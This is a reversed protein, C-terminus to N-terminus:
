MVVISRVTKRVTKHINKEPSEFYESHNRGRNETKLNSFFTASSSSSTSPHTFHLSDSITPNYPLINKQSTYIQPINKEPSDSSSFTRPMRERSLVNKEINKDQTRNKSDRYSLVNRHPSTSSPDRSPIRENKESSFNNKIKNTEMMATADIQMVALSRITSMLVLDDTNGAVNFDIKNPYNDDNKEDNIKHNDNNNDNYENDGNIYNSDRNYINNGNNDNDDRDVYNDNDNNRLNTHDDNGNKERDYVSHHVNEDDFNDNRSISFNHTGSHGNMGQQPYENSQSNSLKEKIKTRIPSSELSDCVTPENIHSMLDNFEVMLVDLAAVKELSRNLVNRQDTRQTTSKEPSSFFTGSSSSFTGIDKYVPQNVSAALRELPSTVDTAHYSKTSEAASTESSHEATTSESSQERLNSRYHEYNYGNSVSM